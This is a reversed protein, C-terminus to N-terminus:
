GGEGDPGSRDDGVPGRAAGVPLEALATLVARATAVRPRGLRRVLEADVGAVASRVVAAANRGRDTLALTLRRRDKPDTTRDLYGREVLVEVLQGTAQKSVGLLRVVEGLPVGVGLVGILVSPGNRPLDDYGAGVLAARVARRYAGAAGALLAPLGIESPDEAGDPM